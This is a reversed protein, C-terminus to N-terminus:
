IASFARVYYADNDKLYNAYLVFKESEFKFVVPRTNSYETSSHWTHYNTFPLASVELSILKKISNDILKFRACLYGLEGASPLYWDGQNTGITHYRWCCQAATHPQHNNDLTGTNNVITTATQWDTSYSNDITLITATNVKGDMQETKSGIGSGDNYIQSYLPNKSGDNLYPSPCGYTSGKKYCTATDYPNTVGEYRTGFYFDSPINYSGTDWEIIRQISEFPNDLNTNIIPHYQCNKLTPIDYSYGGWAMGIHTNQNGNDPNNYDMAALSIIRATEDDTHSAPVVVVGIPTYQTLNICEISDQNIFLKDLTNNDVICIDGAITDIKNVFEIQCIDNLLRRRM